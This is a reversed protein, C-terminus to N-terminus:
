RTALRLLVWLQGIADFDGERPIQTVGRRGWLWLYVEMASGSVEAGEEDGPHWGTEWPTRWLRFVQNAEVGPGTRALWERGGTRITVDKDKTGSVRLTTLRYQFWVTLVEDIGDLAIDEPVEPIDEVPMGIGRQVDVRHVSVEHAMRRQWFGYSRDDPFWGPAPEGPDHEALETLLPAIGTRLYDALSQNSAPERQWDRPRRGERLWYLLMRSDSGVHRAAEGVTLDPCGPVQHELKDYDISGALDEAEIALRRLLRDHDVLAQGSM